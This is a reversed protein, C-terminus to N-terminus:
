RTRHFTRSWRTDTFFHTVVHGMWSINKSMSGPEYDPEASKFSWYNFLPRGMINERPCSVGSARISRQRAPQRGDHLVHGASGRSRREVVHNPFDVAWSEPILNGPESPRRCPPFSTSSTASSKRAHHAPRLAPSAGRRQHHRHRQASPHPRRARRRAAQGPDPVAAQGPTRIPTPSRSSSSWSTAAAPNAITFWRCGNPPRRLAHHPGRGSSRGGAAHEGDIGFPIVFNQALFTLIFLGVVLVSCIGAVAEFPTEEVKDKAPM